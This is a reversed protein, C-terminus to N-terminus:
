LLMVVSLSRHPFTTCGRMGPLLRLFHIPCRSLFCFHSSLRSPSRYGAFIAFPPNHYHLAGVPSFNLLTALLFYALLGLVIWSAISVKRDTQIRDWHKFFSHSSHLLSIHFRHINFISYLGFHGASTLLILFYSEPECFM